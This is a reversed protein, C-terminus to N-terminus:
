HAGSGFEAFGSQFGEFFAFGHNDLLNLRDNLFGLGDNDGSFKSLFGGWLGFEGTFDVFGNVGGNGSDESDGTVFGLFGSLGEDLFGDFGLFSHGCFGFGNDFFSNSGTFGDNDSGSFGDLSNQNGLGFFATLSTALTWFFIVLTM